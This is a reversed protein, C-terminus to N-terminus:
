AVAEPAHAQLLRRRRVSSPINLVDRYKAVTRRAIEIGTGRLRDVIAEDSLVTDATEAGIMEQIKHRVTESSHEEGSAASGGVPNSFFFKLEFLGRNTMIYKNSTVRSVTSEHMDIADAIMKLTLPKLYGVGKDFFDRQHAVIEAAVRLITNARQEINKILWNADSMCSSVFRKDDRKRCGASIEVYYTQDILVRPLFESNLEVGWGGDALQSLLIDPMAPMVPSADFRLGPRPDLRRIDAMLALIDSKHVGCVRVLKPIDLSAVLDLNELLIAMPGTLRGEDSLQLRLCEALDRAGVGAPDLTQVVSLGDAIAEDSVGLLSGLEAFSRRFYGDDDLSHIIERAVALTAGDLGAMPLQEALHDRLTRPAACYAELDAKETSQKQSLQAATKPAAGANRSVTPSAMPSKDFNLPRESFTEAQAAGPLGRAIPEASPDPQNRPVGDSKIELFPNKEAESQIFESLEVNSYQLLKISQLIRATIVLSQSQNNALGLSLDM